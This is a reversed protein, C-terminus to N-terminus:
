GVPTAEIISFATETPVVGTLEYGAKAFVNAYDDTGRIAGAMTVLMVLNFNKVFRSVGDRHVLEVAAIKAKPSAEKTRRLLTIIKEDDWSHM